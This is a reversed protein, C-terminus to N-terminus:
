RMAERLRRAYDEREEDSAYKERPWFFHRLGDKKRRPVVHVHLHPVSQSVVNNQAVFSGDAGLGAIMARAARQVTAYVPALADAPLEVLTEVHARPVVLLHGRFLPSHDLFAVTAADTHVIAAPREGAVIACFLCSV